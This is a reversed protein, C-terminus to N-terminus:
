IQKSLLTGEEKLLLLTKSIDDHISVSQPIIEPPVDMECANISVYVADPNAYTMQWFPIKIIGPTNYGVGLELYLVKGRKHQALWRTYREAAEHWGADEVFTTDCRLNLSMPGGCRPCRPILGKPICLEKQATAMARVQEENAWTEQCCPEACQFLGYDGQTYFLRSKDFGSRQFCHDVNTTLVFYDKRRVLSLLDTYTSKPIVGYRNMLIHRSWYAWREEQSPYPYFGASYMDSYGYKAIFDAFSDQFRKGSYEIGASASLGAGAGILVADAKEILRGLM